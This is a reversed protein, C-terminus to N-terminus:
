GGETRSLERIYRALAEVEAASLQTGFAPMLRVGNTINKALEADSTHEKWFEASTFDGPRPNFAVAAPGDGNGVTGHCPACLTRFNEKPTTLGADAVLAVPWIDAAALTVTAVPAQPQPASSVRMAGQQLFELVADRQADTLRATLAMHGMISRWDKATYRAPPQPTHCRGCVSAWIEVGSHQAQARAPLTLGTIALLAATMTLNKAIRM